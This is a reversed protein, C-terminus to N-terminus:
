KNSSRNECMIINLDRNEQLYVGPFCNEEYDLGQVKNLGYRRRGLEIKLTTPTRAITEILM